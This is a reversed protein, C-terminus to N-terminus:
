IKLAPYVRSVGTTWNLYDKFGIKDKPLHLGLQNVLQVNKDVLVFTPKMERRGYFFLM